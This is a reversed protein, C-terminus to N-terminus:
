SRTSRLRKMTGRLHREMVSMALAADKSRIAEIIQRHERGGQDWSAKTHRVRTTALDRVMPDHFSQVLLHITSNHTAEALRIHFEVSINVDYYGTDTAAKGRALIEELADIDAATARQCALPLSNVELILRAETTDEPSSKSLSSVNALGEGVVESLRQSIVAGGRAGRRISLIGKAELTRFADRVSLRSVNLREALERESPLRDAVKLDGDQIMQIVQQVIDSSLRTTAIPRFMSAASKGPLRPAKDAAAPMAKRGSTTLPKTVM